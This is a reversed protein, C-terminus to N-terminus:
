PVPLWSFYSDSTEWQGKPTNQGPAYIALHSNANSLYIMSLWALQGNLMRTPLVQGPLTQVIKLTKADLAETSPYGDSTDTQPWTVLFVTQGDPGIALDSSQTDLHALETASTPDIVQLGLAQRDMAFTGDSKKVASTSQGVVYLRQGDPSIVATKTVGNFTKASAAGAGFAMLRDLLSRRPQIAQSIVSRAQFDVTILTPQDASVIYLKAGDPAFVVGPELYRGKTPDNPDGDEMGSYIVEPLNSQWRPQLTVADLLSVSLHPGKVVPIINTPAAETFFKASIPGYVALDGGPTFHLKFVSHDLHARAIVKGQTVDVVVLQSDPTTQDNLAFAARRGGADFVIDGTWSHLMPDLEVPPMNEKWERLDLLHFCNGPCNATGYGVVAMVERNPSFGVQYNSGLAIPAYGDLPKGSSVGLPVLIVSGDASGPAAQVTLVAAGLKSARAGTLPVPPVTNVQQAILSQCGSLVILMLCLWFFFFTRKIMM